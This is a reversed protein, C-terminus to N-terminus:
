IHSTGVGRQLTKPYKPYKLYAFALKHVSISISSITTESMMKSFKLNNQGPALAAKFYLYDAFLRMVFM